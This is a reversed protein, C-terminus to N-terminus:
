SYSNASLSWSCTCDLFSLIMFSFTMIINYHIIYYSPLCGRVKDRQEETNQLESQLKTIIDCFEQRQEAAERRDQKLIDMLAQPSGFCFSCLYFFFVVFFSLLKFFVIESSVCYAILFM